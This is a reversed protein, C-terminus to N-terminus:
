FLFLGQFFHFLLFDPFFHSAAFDVVSLSQRKGRAIALAMAHSKIAAASAISIGSSNWGPKARWGKEEVLEAGGGAGESAALPVLSDAGAAGTARFAGLRRQVGRDRDWDRDRQTQGLDDVRRGAAGSPLLPQAAWQLQQGVAVAAAAAAAVAAAAPSLAATATAAAAPEGALAVPPPGLVSRRFLVLHPGLPLALLRGRVNDYSCHEVREWRLPPAPPEPSSTSSSAAASEPEDAFAAVADGVRVGQAAVPHEYVSVEVAESGPASAPPARFRTICLGTGGGDAGREGAAREGAPGVGFLLGFPGKVVTACFLDGARAAAATTLSSAFPWLEAAAAADDAAAARRAVDAVNAAAAAAAAAAAVDRLREDLLTAYTARLQLATATV